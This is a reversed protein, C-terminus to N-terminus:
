TIGGKGSVGSVTAAESWINGDSSKAIYVTEGVAVWNVGGVSVGVGGGAKKTPIFNSITSIM